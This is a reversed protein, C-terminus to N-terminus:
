RRPPARFGDEKVGRLVAQIVVDTLSLQRLEAYEVLWERFPASMRIHLPRGEDRTGRRPGIKEGDAATTSATM